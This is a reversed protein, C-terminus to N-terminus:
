LMGQLPNRGDFVRNGRIYGEMVQTSKHGSMEKIEQDTCGNKAAATVAGARLSHAGYLSADLGARAIARKIAEHIAEGTIPKHIIRGTRSTRCFLPGPWSGRRAIWAKLSRVPDTSEREGPWVGFYRGKGKQDTKSRKKFLTIRGFIDETVDSLQLRALESRRFTSAFGSFWSPM